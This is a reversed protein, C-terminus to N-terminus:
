AIDDEALGPGLVEARFQEFERLLHERLSPMLKSILAAVRRAMPQADDVVVALEGRHKRMAALLEATVVGPAATWHLKGGSVTLRVGRATLTHLLTPLNM